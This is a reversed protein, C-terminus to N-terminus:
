KVTGKRGVGSTLYEEKRWAVQIYIKEDSLVVGGRASGPIPTAAKYFWQPLIDIGYTLCTVFRERHTARIESSLGRFPYSTHITIYGM